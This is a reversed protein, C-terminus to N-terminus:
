PIAALEQLFQRVIMIRIGLDALLDSADALSTLDRDGTVLVDAAGAVATELFIDDKPDRCLQLTGEITVVDAGTSLLALLRASRDPPM